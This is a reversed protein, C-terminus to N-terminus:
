PDERFCSHDAREFILKMERRGPAAIGESRGSRVSTSAVERAEKPLYVTCLLTLEIPQRRQKTSRHIDM